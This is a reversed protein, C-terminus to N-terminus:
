PLVMEEVDVFGVIGHGQPGVVGVCLTNRRPPRKRGRPRIM